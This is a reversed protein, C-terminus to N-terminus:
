SDGKTSSQLEEIVEICAERASGYAGMEWAAVIARIQIMTAECQEENM